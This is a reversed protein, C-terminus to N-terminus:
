IVTLDGGSWDYSVMINRSIKQSMDPKEPPTERLEASEYDNHVFYGVRVFEQQHYSCTIMVATVGLIDQVGVGFM